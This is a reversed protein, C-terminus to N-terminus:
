FKGGPETPGSPGFANPNFSDCATVRPRHKDLEEASYSVIRPAVYAGSKKIDKNKTPTIAPRDMKETM